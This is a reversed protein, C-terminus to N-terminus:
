LIGAVLLCAYLAIQPCNAAQPGVDLRSAFKICCNLSVSSATQQPTQPLAEHLRVELFAFMCSSSWSAIQICNAAGFIHASLVKPLVDRLCVDLSAASTVFVLLSDTHLKSSWLQRSLLKHCLMM